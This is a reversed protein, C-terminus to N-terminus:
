DKEMMNPNGFTNQPGMDMWHSLLLYDLNQTEPRCLFLCCFICGCDSDRAQSAAVSIVM